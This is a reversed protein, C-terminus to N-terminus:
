PNTGGRHSRQRQRPRPRRTRQSFPAGAVDQHATSGKVGVSHPFRAADLARQSEDTAPLFIMSMPSSQASGDSTSSRHRGSSGTSFPRISRPVDPRRVETMGGIVTGAQDQMIDLRVGPSRPTTRTGCGRPGCTHCGSSRWSCRWERAGGTPDRLSPRCARSRARRARFTGAAVTSRRSPTRSGSGTARSGTCRDPSGGARPPPPLRRTRRRSYSSGCRPCPRSAGDPRRSSRDSTRGRRAGGRRWATPARRWPRSPFQGSAGRIRSTCPDPVGSARRPPGYSSAM